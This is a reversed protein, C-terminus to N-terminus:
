AAANFACAREAAQGVRTETAASRTLGEDGKERREHAHLNYLKSELPLEKCLLTVLALASSSTSTDAPEAEACKWYAGNGCSGPM